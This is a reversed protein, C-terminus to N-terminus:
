PASCSTLNFGYARTSGDELKSVYFVLDPAEWGRVQVHLLLFRDTHRIAEQGRLDAVQEWGPRAAAREM